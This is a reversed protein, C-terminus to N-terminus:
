RLLIQMFDNVVNWGILHHCMIKIKIKEREFNNLKVRMYSLTSYKKFWLNSYCYYTYIFFVLTKWIPWKMNRSTCAIYNNMYYSLVTVNLSFITAVKFGFALAHWLLVFQHLRKCNAFHALLYIYWFFLLIFNPLLELLLVLLINVVM